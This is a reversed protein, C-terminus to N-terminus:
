TFSDAIMLLTLCVLAVITKKAVDISAIWRWQTKLLQSRYLFTLYGISSPFRLQKLQNLAFSAMGSTFTLHKQAMLFAVGPSGDWSMVLEGTFLKAQIGALGNICPTM